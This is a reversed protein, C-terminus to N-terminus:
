ALKMREKMCEECYYIGDFIWYGDGEYIPHGKDDYMKADDKEPLPETRPEPINM